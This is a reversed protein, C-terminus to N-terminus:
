RVSTVAASSASFCVQPYLFRSARSDRCRLLANQHRRCLQVIVVNGPTQIQANCQMADQHM